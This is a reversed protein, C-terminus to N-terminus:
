GVLPENQALATGAGLSDFNIWSAGTLTSQVGISAGKKIKLREPIQFMVILNSQDSDIEISRVIGVKVGGVRVDDGVRLGGLDDTLKFKAVRVQNPELFEGVGKIGVIVGVILAISIVIFIGAKFANREKSM